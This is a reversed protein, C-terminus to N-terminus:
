KESMNMDMVPLCSIRSQIMVTKVRPDLSKFCGYDTVIDIAMDLPFLVNMSPENAVLQEDQFHCVRQSMSWRQDYTRARGHM